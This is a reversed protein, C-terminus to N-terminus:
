EKELIVRKIGRLQRFVAGEGVQRLVAADNEVMVGAAASIGHRFLVPSLPTSPGILVVEKGRALPLIREISHNALAQGTIVVLDSDPIVREAAAAPLDGERPELELIWCQRAMPVLTQIFPFHGVVTLNRDEVRRRLFDVGNEERWGAPLPLGANLAALGLSAELPRESLVLRALEAVPKGAYEGCGGAAPVQHELRPPLLTTALGVRRGTSVATLFPGVAVRDAIVGSSLEALLDELLRM